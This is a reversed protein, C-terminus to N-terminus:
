IYLNLAVPKIKIVVCWGQKDKRSTLYPVYYVQRVNRALIFQDFLLYRKEIHINAIIYKPDGITGRYSPDFWHCYFIVM